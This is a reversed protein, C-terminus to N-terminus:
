SASAVTAELWEDFTPGALTAHAGPLLAGNEYLDRDPDSSDSVGEVRVRDGRRAVLRTAMEVMAEEKPGAIELIPL